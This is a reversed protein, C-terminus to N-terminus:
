KSKNSNLNFKKNLLNGVFTFVLIGLGDAILDAIDLTRKPFFAQSLEEVFVCIAVLFTGIPLIRFYKFRKFNLAFNVALTFIGFLFFHGVKDGFPLWNVFDFFINKGGTDASYIIWIIFLLFVVTIGKIWKSM